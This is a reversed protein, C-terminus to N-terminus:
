TTALNHLMSFILTARTYITKFITNNWQFIDQDTLPYYPRDSASFHRDKAFSNLQQKTLWDSNGVESVTLPIPWAKPAVIEPIM